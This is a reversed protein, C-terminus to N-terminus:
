SEARKDAGRKENALRAVEDEVSIVRRAVSWQYLFFIAAVTIYAVILNDVNKDLISDVQITNTSADLTGIVRVRKDAFQEPTKQDSLVYSAKGDYLVYSAGFMQVCTNTCEADVPARRMRSHDGQACMSDTITGTFHHNPPAISLVALVLIGLALILAIKM